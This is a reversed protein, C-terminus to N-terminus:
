RVELLAGPKLRILIAPLRTVGPFEDGRCALIPMYRLQAGIGMFERLPGSHGHRTAFPRIEIPANVEIPRDSRLMLFLHFRYERPVPGPAMQKLLSGPNRVRTGLGRTSRSEWFSVANNYRAHILVNLKVEAAQVPRCCWRGDLDVRACLRIYRVNLEFGAPSSKGKAGCSVSDGQTEFLVIAVRGIGYDSEPCMRGHFSAHNLHLCTFELLSLCSWAIIPIMCCSKFSSTM